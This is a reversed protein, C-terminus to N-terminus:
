ASASLAELRREIEGADFVRLYPGAKVYAGEVQQDPKVVNVYGAQDLPGLGFNRVYERKYGLPKGCQEWFEEVLVRDRKQPGQLSRAAHCLCALTLQSFNHYREVPAVLPKAGQEYPLLFLGVADLRRRAEAAWEADSVLLDSDEPTGRGDILRGLFTEISESDLM